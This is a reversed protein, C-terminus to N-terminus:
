QPHTHKTHTGAACDLPTKGDNAMSTLLLLLLLVTHVVVAEAFAVTACATGEDVVGVFHGDAGPSM